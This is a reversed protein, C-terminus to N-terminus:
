PELSAGRRGRREEPPMTEVAICLLGSDEKWTETLSNGSRSHGTWGWQGKEILGGVEWAESLGRM